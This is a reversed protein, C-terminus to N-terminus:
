NFLQISSAGWLLYHYDRKHHKKQDGSTFRFPHSLNNPYILSPPKALVISYTTIVNV